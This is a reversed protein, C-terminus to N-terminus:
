VSLLQILKNRNNMLNLVEKNPHIKSKKILSNIVILKRLGYEDMSIRLEERTKTHLRPGKRESKMFKAAAFINEDVTEKIGDVVSGAIQTLMDNNDSMARLGEESFKGELAMSAQLKSAMLKVAKQQITDKYYMFYVKIDRTQSLRWSRRSAQRLTFLNYGMQYFLITTFDLLDLGTEVLKPNCILVQMGNESERQIWEERDEQKIKSTLEKAKIGENALLNILTSAIDTKNVWSYYILVKEGNAIKEKVLEITALDKNRIRKQLTEPKIVLEDTDPDRIEIEMHPCDAYSTMSEVMRGMIKKSGATFKSTAHSFEREFRKYADELESDMDIGLPIEEYDPLGESMDSLSLFVANNLLFKTFVLPSVGPLAKESNVVRGQRTSKSSNQTVGYRRVFEM